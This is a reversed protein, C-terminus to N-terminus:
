RQQGTRHFFFINLVVVDFIYGTIKQKLQQAANNKRRRHKSCLCKNRTRIKRRKNKHILVKRCHRKILYCVNIIFLIHVYKKNNSEDIKNGNM